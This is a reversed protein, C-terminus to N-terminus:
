NTPKLAWKQSNEGSEIVQAFNAGSHLRWKQKSGGGDAYQMVRTRDATSFGLVDAVIGVTPM